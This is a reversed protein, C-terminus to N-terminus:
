VNLVINKLIKYLIKHKKKLQFLYIETIKNMFDRPLISQKISNCTHCSCYWNSPEDAGGKSIPVKHEIEFSPFDVFEGCLYCHGKTKRYTMAREEPTYQKKRKTKDALIASVLDVDKNETKIEEKVYCEIEAKTLPKVAYAKLKKPNASKAEQAAERTEFIYADEVKQTMHIKNKSDYSLYHQGNFLFFYKKM